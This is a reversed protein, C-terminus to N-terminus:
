EVIGKIGTGDVDFCSDPRLATIGEPPGESVRSQLAVDLPGGELLCCDFLFLLLSSDFSADDDAVMGGAVVFVGDGVLLM